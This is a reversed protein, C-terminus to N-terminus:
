WAAACQQHFGSLAAVWEGPHTAHPIHGAGQLVEVVASPLLQALEGIVAAFLAPSETGRTVLLPLTTAALAATDIALASQDALEDLYTPANNELVSRFGEPLMNWAGEGLAVNEIFYEAADRHDGSTILEAVVALRTEAAALEDAVSRDSTAELLGFLPPEHVAATRVLDPRDTVLTLTINAGYSNGVAHVPESSVHEILGALDTADESRSGPGEGVASHSHGRRDWVVVRYEEALLNVAPEWGTSDTWSGHTLVVCDGTGRVEYHLEVGNVETTAM